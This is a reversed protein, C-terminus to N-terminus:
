QLVIDTHILYKYIYIYIYVVAACHQYPLVCMRKAHQFINHAIIVVHGFVCFSQTTGCLLYMALSTYMCSSIGYVGTHIMGTICAQTHPTVDHRM